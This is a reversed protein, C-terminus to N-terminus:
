DCQPDVRVFLGLRRFDDVINDEEELDAHVGDPNVIFSPVEIPEPRGEDRNGHEPNEIVRERADDGENQLEERTEIVGVQAQAVLRSSRQGSISLTSPLGEGTNQGEACFTILPESVDAQGDKFLTDGSFPAEGLIQPELERIGPEVHGEVVRGDALATPHPLRREALISLDLRAFDDNQDDDDKVLILVLTTSWSSLQVRVMEDDDISPTIYRAYPHFRRVYSSRYTPLRLSYPINSEAYTLLYRTKIGGIDGQAPPLNNDQPDMFVRRGQPIPFFLTFFQTGFKITPILNNQFDTYGQLVEHVRDQEGNRLIIRQDDTETIHASWPRRNM